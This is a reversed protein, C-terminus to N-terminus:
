LFIDGNMAEYDARSFAQLFIRGGDEIEVVTSRDRNGRFEIDYDAGRLDIRDERSFDHIIDDGNNLVDLVFVDAYKEGNRGMDARFWDDGAGLMMTDRGLDGFVRDNGAGADLWDDGGRGRLTDKGDGGFVFDDGKGASVFDNGDRALIRDDEATGSLRDNAKSGFVESMEPIEPAVPMLEVAYPESKVEVENGNINDSNVHLVRLDEDSRGADHEFLRIHRTTLDGKANGNDEVVFDVTDGKELDIGRLTLEGMDRTVLRDIETGNLRVSVAIGDASAKAVSYSAVIDVPGSQEAVYRDVPNRDDRSNRSFDAGLVEVQDMRFPRAWGSGLFPNWIENSREQGGMIELTEMVAGRGNVKELLQSWGGAGSQQLDFELFSDAIAGHGQITVDQGEVFIVQGDLFKPQEIVQGYVDRVSIGNGTLTLAQPAGWVASVGEGLDYVRLTGDTEVRQIPGGDGVLTQLHKYATAVRNTVGVKDYLGMEAHSSGDEDYLAYWAASDVGHSALEATMKVLYNADAGEPGVLSSQGFETVMLSPRESAPLKDLVSNLVDLAEGAAEPTLGYPHFSLTDMYKFAGADILHQVFGTPVSHLGGGIIEVDPHAAGIKDSVGKLLRTFLEAKFPLNDTAAEGSVFASSKGNYENGIEIKKLDPFRDLVALVYNAFGEIAEDSAAWKGHQYNPNGQPLLTLIPDGGKALVWDLYNSRQDSFDYQGAKNEVRHWNLGGRVFSAAVADLDARATAGYPGGQGYHTAVGLNFGTTSHATM